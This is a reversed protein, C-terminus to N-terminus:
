LWVWLAVLLSIWTVIVVVAAGTKFGQPLQSGGTAAQSRHQEMLGTPMLSTTLQIGLPILFVEDLMGVVPIVDPILDIPSVAYAVVLFMVTRPLWPTAPDRLASILTKIEVMMQRAWQKIKRAVTISYRKLRRGLGM